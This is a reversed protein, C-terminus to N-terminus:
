KVKKICYLTITTCVNTIINEAISLPSWNLSLVQLLPKV